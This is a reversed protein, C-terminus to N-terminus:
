VDDTALWDGMARKHYTKVSQRQRIKTETLDYFVQFKNEIKLHFYYKTTDDLEIRIFDNEM